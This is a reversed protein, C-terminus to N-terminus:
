REVLKLNKETESWSVLSLVHQGLETDELDASKCEKYKRRLCEFLVEEPKLGLAKAVSIFQSLKMQVKENLYKHVNVRDWKQEPAEENLQRALDSMTRGLSDLKKRLIAGVAFPVFCSSAVALISQNAVIRPEKLRNWFPSFRRENVNVTCLQQEFHLV